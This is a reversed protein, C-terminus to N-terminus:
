PVGTWFQDLVRFPSDDLGEVARGSGVAAWTAWANAVKRRCFRRPLPRTTSLAKCRVAVGAATLFRPRFGPGLALSSFSAHSVIRFAWPAPPM